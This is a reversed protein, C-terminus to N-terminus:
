TNNQQVRARLGTMRGAGSAGGNRVAVGIAKRSGVLVALKRARTLGTYILKRELMMFHSMVMPMVVCPYESGQSKHISIAYALTLQDLETFDYEVVRDDELQVTVVQDVTDIRTIVGGDGNFVDMDYNNRMQLVKDGQRFVRNGFAKQPKDDDPPNLAAQLAGNLWAVGCKGNHMPALVQIEIPRLGFKAPIRRAVLDVVLAAAKEADDEAFLFFDEIPGGTLPMEGRNIRHANVAIASTESQRFIQELRVVPMSESAIIDALVNGAGVSPLQDADGVFLVHAGTPVAKLLTNMLLTDLMSTEDIIVIDAPLPADADFQPKGGPRIALLRHLTKAELGTAESLRRAARGTPAALVIRKRKAQLVRILARMSTTKGTGPGGTLVGVPQTLAMLVGEKQKDALTIKETQELWGFMVAADVARFEALLDTAPRCLRALQRAIGEEAHFFPLLYIATEDASTGYEAAPEGIQLQRAPAGAPVNEFSGAATRRLPEAHASREVVLDDIAKVTPAAEVGLLESARLALQARPQYTHGDETSESLAFLVGAKIREPDDPQVGMALAIKDATKFGIGFVERALRYPQNKAVSISADRYQKYIRVALSTSVGHGQLFIMVDKIAKQETWAAIIKAITKTGIGPVDRLREPATDFIQLTDVDFYAVIKEATRPGIGKILGSGLYKRIGTATAPLVSKFSHVIFQWGHQDHQQWHGTLELAEGPIAGALSGVITALSDVQGRQERSDPLLKAVTYGNEENQFTIRELVGTIVKPEPATMRGGNHVTRSSRGSIPHM